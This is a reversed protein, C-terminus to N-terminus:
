NIIIHVTTNWVGRHDSTRFHHANSAKRCPNLRGMFLRLPDTTAMPM